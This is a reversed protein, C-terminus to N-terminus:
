YEVAGVTPTNANRTKDYFDYSLGTPQAGTNIVSATARLKFSTQDALGAAQASNYYVNNSERLNESEISMYSIINNKPHPAPFNYALNNYIECTGGLLRYADLVVGYWDRSLNLNGCTNHYVKANAYTTKGPIIFDVFSQVEFASYKRSDTVINNYIHIQRPTTGVSVAWARLANGQHHSIRNNYFKGNGILHFMANHNDNEKNVNTFTNHHIDYDEALGVYVVNKPSPADKFHVDAIELKRVLGSLTGNKVSGTIYLLVGTNTATLNLFKLNEAYSNASGDYILENSYNIVRNGINSFEIHQFTFHNIAGNLSVSRYENDRFLFGKDLGKTGDGTIIVHSVDSISMTKRYGVFEVLGDNEIRIPCGSRGTLNRVVISNYQGEKIAITVNCDYQQTEGDIVLRGKADATLILKELSASPEETDSQDEGQEPVPAPEEDAIPTPIAKKSCYPFLSVLCVLLTLLRFKPLM